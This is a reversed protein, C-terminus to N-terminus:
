YPNMDFIFLNTCILVPGYPYHTSGCTIKDVKRFTIYANFIFMFLVNIHYINLNRFLIM